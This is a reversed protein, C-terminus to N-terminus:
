VKKIEVIDSIPIVEGKLTLLADNQMGVVEVEKESTTTTIRIKTKYVHTKANFIKNIDTISIKEGRDLEKGSSMFIEKNNNMSKNIPVAFVKPLDKNMIFVESCKIILDWIQQM